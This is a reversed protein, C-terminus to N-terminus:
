SRKSRRKNRRCAYIEELSTIEKPTKERLIESIGSRRKMLEEIERLKPLAALDPLGFHRLFNETTGYLLPRGLGEGRGTITILNRELLSKVVEDCNVGRVAEIDPKSIPQRYSVIALTELGAQSLRRRQRSAYMRGVFEGFRQETAFTFGGAIERIRFGRGTDEYEKNLTEVASRIDGETASNKRKRKANPLIEGDPSVETSSGEAQPPAERPDEGDIISQVERVTIPEDSAFIIAELIQPLDKAITFPFQTKAM